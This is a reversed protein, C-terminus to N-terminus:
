PKKRIHEGYGRIYKWQPRVRFLVMIKQAWLMIPKRWDAPSTWEARQRVIRDLNELTQDAMAPSLYYAPEFLDQGAALSGEKVATEALATGEYIRIGYTAFVAAPMACDNLFSQTDRVDKWTEGPGGFLMYLVFLM